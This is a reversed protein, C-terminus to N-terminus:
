YSWGFGLGFSVGPQVRRVTIGGQRLVAEQHLLNRASFRLTFRDLLEYSLSLDLSHFPEEYVDPLGLRGVDQIREGFVNYFVSVTLGTGEPEYDLSLNAVWPSQGALPREANTASMREEETMSVQSYVLTLNGGVTLVSLPAWLRGLSFRAELEGGFNQAGAVNAFTINGQRDVVVQEIPSLFFKYFASVALVERPGYFWEWRLDLNHISTRELEPNGQVTRRRVFDQFLFPALERVQPRAVTWGYALRLNMDELVAYVLSAAPLLDVDTRATGRVEEQGADAFPSSSRVRQDFAEVRAGTVFRLPGWIPADAMLYGAWLYQEAEYGDDPRTIEVVEVFDGVAEPSFLEEPPLFREASSRGTYRMSFRRASFARRSVRGTLGTTATVPGIPATLDLALGLDLQSLSSFFRDGSGPVSRWFFGAESEEYTLDRQDPEDRLVYGVDLRWELRSGPPVPLGEHEGLLQAFALSREIWGLRRAEISASESEAFGHVLRATETGSHAWLAVLTLRDHDTPEFSATGLAGWRGTLSGTEMRLQERVRVEAEEGEGELRVSAVSGLTRSSSVGYSLSLLYGFPRGGLRVRDGIAASLGLAPLGLERTLSWRNPFSEGIREVEDAGLDHLGIEVRHDPVASPLARGGDDFGLFDASGSRDLYTPQFIGQTDFGTSLGLRLQFREPFGRTTILMSGGAFAGLMEPTFTKRVSISDLLGAPILDLQAGPVDPDLSPLPVGNLLVSTYRGGLGRVFLYQGDVLTAAVVRRVVGGASGDPARSMEEASVSDQVTAAQQRIRLQSEATASDAAATVADLEIVSDSDPELRITLEAPRGRQVVVGRVRVPHHLEYFSRLSYTGPPLAVSFLGDLDTRTREERGVVYVEAEILPEGTQSDVVRGRVGTALEGAGGREPEDEAASEALAPAGATLVLLLTSCGAAGRPRRPWRTM